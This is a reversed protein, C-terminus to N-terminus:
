PLSLINFAHVPTNCSHLLVPSLAAHFTKSGLTSSRKKYELAGSVRNLKRLDRAEKWHSRKKQSTCLIVGTMNSSYRRLERALPATIRAVFQSIGLRCLTRHSTHWPEKPRVRLRKACFCNQEACQKSHYM